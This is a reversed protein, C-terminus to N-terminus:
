MIYEERVDFISICVYIIKINVKKVKWNKKVVCYLMNLIIEIGFIIVKLM